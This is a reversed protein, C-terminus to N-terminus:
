HTTPLAIPPYTNGSPGDLALYYVNGAVASAVTVLGPALSASLRGSVTVDVISGVSSAITFLSIAGQCDNWFGATSNKPPRFGLARTVTVGTPISEDALEDKSFIDAAVWHLSASGGASPWVTVRKLLLSSTWPVVSVVSSAVGGLSGALSLSTITASSTSTSICRITYTTMPALDLRPPLNIASLSLSPRALLMGQARISLSKPFTDIKGHDVGIWGHDPHLEPDVVVRPSAGSLAKKEEYKMGRVVGPTGPPQAVQSTSQGVPKHTSCHMNTYWPWTWGCDREGISGAERLPRERAWL